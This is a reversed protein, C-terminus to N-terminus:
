PARTRRWGSCCTPSRSTPTATTPTRRGRLAQRVPRRGRRLVPDRELRRRRHLDARPEERDGRHVEVRHTPWTSASCRSGSSPASCRRPWRRAPGPSAPSCCRSGRPRALGHAEYGWESLVRDRHRLYASISRLVDLQREALVLDDWRTPPSSVRRGARGAAVVLRAPRGPRSRRAAAVSRRALPGRDPQGRRRRPDARDLAQVEGRGRPRREAGSFSSWARRREAFGPASRRRRAGHTRQARAGRPADGRDARDARPERRDRAAASRARRALSGGARRHLAPRGRARRRPACRRARGTARARARGLLVVPPRRRRPWCRAPMRAARRRAAPTHRRRAAAPARETAEERGTSITPPRRPAPRQRGGRRGPRRRRAPVRGAPRGGEGPPRGADHGARRVAHPRRGSARAASGPAFRALVDAAAVSEDCLLDAALRPSALKRTVDDHLYAYLRGFRPDLEPAACLALVVADLRTWGSASPPSASRRRPRRARRRGGTALAQEDSIYLGRLADHPDAGRAM